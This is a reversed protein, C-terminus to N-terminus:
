AAGLARALRPVRHVILSEFVVVALLTTALLPFAVSLVVAVGFIVLNIRRQAGAQPGSATPSPASPPYTGIM